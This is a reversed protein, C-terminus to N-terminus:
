SSTGQAPPLDSAGRGRRSTMRDMVARLDDPLPSNFFRPEGSVPDDYSLSSAHLFIRRLGFGAMQRNFEKDGYKDDGALPHGAATAQVRIQHTRGTLLGVDMMTAIRFDEVPRFQSVAKKGTEDLRVLREGSKVKDTRIHDELLVTGQQWSGRVLALYSKTLGGSRLLEHLARLYSRKKAILLCGSTDRDLRHVLELYRCDTRAVRLAEIVGFSRGSGGHVAMGPPKDLVLLRDDEFLVRESLHERTAETIKSDARPGARRVPPIRVRDNCQLRYTPGVRGKNVRVEGRRILRYVRSRPVGKLRTLLYNDIRQGAEDDSIDRYEVGVM